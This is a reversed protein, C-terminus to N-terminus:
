IPHLCRVRYDGLKLNAIQKFAKRTSVTNVLFFVWVLYM